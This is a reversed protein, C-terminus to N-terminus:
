GVEKERPFFVAVESKTPGQSCGSLVARLPEVDATPEVALARQFADLKRELVVRSLKRLSTPKMGAQM